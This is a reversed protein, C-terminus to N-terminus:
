PYQYLFRHACGVRGPEVMSKNPNWMWVRQLAVMGTFVYAPATSELEVKLFVANWGPHLSINRTTSAAPASDVWLCLMSVASLIAALTHEKM